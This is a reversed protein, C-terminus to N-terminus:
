TLLRTPGCQRLEPPEDAQWNMMEWIQEVDCHGRGRERGGATGGSGEQGAAFIFFFIFFDLSTRLKKKQATLQRGPIGPIIEQFGCRHLRRSCSCFSVTKGTKPFFPTGEAAM